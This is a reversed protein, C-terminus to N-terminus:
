STKEKRKNEAYTDVSEMDKDRSYDAEYRAM